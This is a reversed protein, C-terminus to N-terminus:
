ALLDHIDASGSGSFLTFDDEALQVAGRISRAQLADLLAAQLELQRALTVFEHVAINLIRMINLLTPM